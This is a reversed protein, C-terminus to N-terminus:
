PATTAPRQPTPADAMRGIRVETAWWQGDARREAQVFLRMGPKLDAFSLVTGERTTFVTDDDVYFEWRRGHRNVFHFAAEEVSTVVGKGKYETRPPFVHLIVASWQGAGRRTAAGFVRDGVKIASFSLPRGDKDTITTAGDVYVTRERGGRGRFTLNDPGLATVEGGCGRWRAGDGAPPAGNDAWAAPASSLVLALAALGILVTGLIKHM